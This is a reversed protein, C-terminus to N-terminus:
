DEGGEKKKGGGDTERLRDLVLDKGSHNKKRFTSYIIEELEGETVESVIRQKGCLIRIMDGMSSFHEQVEEEVDEVLGVVQNIDERDQRYVRIIYNKM